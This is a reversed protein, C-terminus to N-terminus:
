AQCLIHLPLLNPRLVVKLEKKKEFVYVKSTPVGLIYSDLIQNFAKLTWKM